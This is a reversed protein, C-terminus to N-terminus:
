VSSALSFMMLLVTSSACLGQVQKVNGLLEVEDGLVLFPAVDGLQVDGDGGHFASPLLDHVQDVGGLGLLPM